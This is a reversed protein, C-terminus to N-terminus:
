RKVSLVRKSIMLITSATPAPQTDPVSSPTSALVLRYRSIGVSASDECVDLQDPISYMCTPRPAQLPFGQHPIQRSPEWSWEEQGYGVWGILYQLGRGSQHPHILRRVTFTPGVDILRPPPPPPSAPPALLSIARQIAIPDIFKLALKQSEVHLPLDRLHTAPQPLMANWLGESPQSESLGLNKSM